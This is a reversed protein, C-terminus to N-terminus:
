PSSRPTRPWRAGPRRPGEARARDRAATAADYGPSSVAVGAPAPAITPLPGLPPLEPDAPGPVPPPAQETIAGSGAVAPSSPLLGLAVAVGIAVLVTTSRPAGRREARLRPRLPPHSVSLM